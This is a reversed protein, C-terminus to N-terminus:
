RRYVTTRQRAQHPEPPAKQGTQSFLGTIDDPNRWSSSIPLSWHSRREERYKYSHTLSARGCSTETAPRRERGPRLRCVETGRRARGVEERLGKLQYLAPGAESRWQRRGARKWANAIGPDCPIMLPHLDRNDHLCIPM